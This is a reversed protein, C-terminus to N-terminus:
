GGLRPLRGRAWVHRARGTEVAAEDPAGAEDPRGALDAVLARPPTPRASATSGAVQRPGPGRDLSAGHPVPRRRAGHRDGGGELPRRREQVPDAVDDGLPHAPGGRGGPDAAAAPLVEQAPEALGLQAPGFGLAELPDRAVERARRGVEDGEGPLDLVEGGRRPRSGGGVRRGREPPRRAPLPPLDRREDGEAAVPERRWPADHVDPRAPAVQGPAQGGGEAYGADPELAVRGPHGRGHGQVLGGPGLESRDLDALGEGELRAVQRDAEVGAAVQAVDEDPRGGRGPDVDDEDVAAELLHLRGAPRGGRGLAPRGPELQRPRDEAQRVEDGPRPPDLQRRAAGELGPADAVGDPEQQGLAADVELGPLLHAAKVAPVDVLAELRRGGPGAGAAPELGGPPALQGPDVGPGRGLVGPNPAPGEGAVHEAADELQGEDEVPGAGELIGAV